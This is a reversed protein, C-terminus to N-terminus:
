RSGNIRNAIEEYNSRISLYVVGIHIRHAEEIEGAVGVSKDWGDLTLVYVVEAGALMVFNYKKWFEADKPMNEVKALEHCHVIPSYVHLGHKLMQATERLVELYRLERVFPDPHSYPSALYIYGASPIM